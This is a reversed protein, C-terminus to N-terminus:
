GQKLIAAKQQIFEAETLIGKDRMVAIRELMSLTSAEGNLRGGLPPSDAQLLDRANALMSDVRAQTAPDMARVVAPTAGSPSQAGSRARTDSAYTQQARLQSELKAAKLILPLGFGRLSCVLSRIYRENKQEFSICIM